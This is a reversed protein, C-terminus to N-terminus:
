DKQGALQGCGAAIDLGRRVRVTVSIRGRARLRDAFEQVSERGAAQGAYGQTPNLPIINVHCKERVIGNEALLQVLADAEAVSDNVGKMLAYEFTVRRGTKEIYERCAQLLTELPYRANVPMLKTREANTAAHLSVALRLPPGIEALKKIQPALGVTSITMHRYSIGLETNVQALASLVNDLNALPEGMGMVVINSCREKQRLLERHFSAVQEFIEASKLQRSFGQQGTACFSCRMACGAQSSVCVTNRNDDYSMLVTEIAPGDHLRYLRKITGDRSKQQKVLALTGLTFHTKLDETITKPINTMEDFSATGQDFLWGFIQNARYAAHGRLALWDAMQRRSFSFLNQM